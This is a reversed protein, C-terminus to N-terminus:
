QLETSFYLLTKCIWNKTNQYNKILLYNRFSNTLLIFYKVNESFSILVFSICNNELWCKFYSRTHNKVMTVSAWTFIWMYIVKTAYTQNSQRKHLCICHNILYNLFDVNLLVPLFVYQPLYVLCTNSSAANAM